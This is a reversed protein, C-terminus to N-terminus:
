IQRKKHTYTLTCKENKERLFIDTFPIQTWTTQNRQRSIQCELDDPTLNLYDTNAEAATWLSKTRGQLSYILRSDFTFLSFFDFCKNVIEIHVHIRTQRVKEELYVHCTHITSEYTTRHHVLGDTTWILHNSCEMILNQIHEIEENSFLVDNLRFGRCM